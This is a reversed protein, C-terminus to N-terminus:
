LFFRSHSPSAGMMARVLEWESVAWIEVRERERVCVGVCLSVGVARLGLLQKGEGLVM